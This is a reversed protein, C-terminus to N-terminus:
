IRLYREKPILVCRKKFSDINERASRPLWWIYVLKPLSTSHCPIVNLLQVGKVLTLGVRYSCCSRSNHAVVLVGGTLCRPAFVISAGLVFCEHLVVARFGTPKAFARFDGHDDVVVAFVQVRPVGTYLLPIQFGKSIECSQKWTDRSPRKCDPGTYLCNKSFSRYSITGSKSWIHELPHSKQGTWNRLSQPYSLTLYFHQKWSLVQLEQLTEM